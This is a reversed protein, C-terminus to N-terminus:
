RKKLFFFFNKKEQQKRGLRRNKKQFKITKRKEKRTDIRSEAPPQVLNIGPRKWNFSELIM